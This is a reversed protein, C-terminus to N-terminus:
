MDALFNYSASDLYQIGMGGGAADTNWSTFTYGNRTFSNTTLNTTTSATQTTDVPGGTYNSNFTVTHASSIPTWVPVLDMSTLIIFSNVLLTGSDLDRWGGFSYGTKVLTNQGLVTVTAGSSYPSSTDTPPTGTTSGTGLYTVTYVANATWQAYLTMNALFNYSNTDIYSTGSGNAAINWNAFTYGPRTFTNATLNKPVSNMQTTDVPGGTYNSKFTVVHPGMPMTNWLPCLITNALITFTNEYLHNNTACDQWGSFTYGTKGLTGSGKLTVTAGSLYANSDIPPIGSDSGTGNYTVTYTSPPVVALASPAFSFLSTVLSLAVALPLLTRSRLVFRHTM